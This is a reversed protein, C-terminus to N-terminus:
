PTSTLRRTVTDTLLKGCSPLHMGGESDAPDGPRSQPEFLQRTTDPLQRATVGPPCGLRAKDNSSRLALWISEGASNQHLASDAVDYVAQAVEQMRRLARGEWIAPAWAVGCAPQTGLDAPENM